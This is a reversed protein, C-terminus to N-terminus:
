HYIFVAADLHMNGSLCCGANQTSLTTIEKAFSTLGTVIFREM